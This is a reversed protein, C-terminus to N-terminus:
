PRRRDRRSADRLRQLQTVRSRAKKVFYLEDGYGDVLRVRIRRRLGGRLPGRRLSRGTLDIVAIEEWPCDIARGRPGRSFFHARFRLHTTTIWLKGPVVHVDEARRVEFTDVVREGPELM